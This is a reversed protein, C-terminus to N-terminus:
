VDGWGVLLDEFRCFSGRFALRCTGKSGHRNKEVIFERTSGDEDHQHVFVVADAEFEIEGSGRLDSMKPRKRDKGGRNMSSLLLIPVDADKALTKQARVLSGIEEERSRSRNSKIRQLYDIVVLAPKVKRCEARVSAVIQELSLGGIDTFELPIKILQDVANVIRPWDDDRLEGRRLRGGDVHSRAAILRCMLEHEPMELSYLLVRGGATAVRDAVNCAWSTKGSGPQGSLVILHGNGLDPLLKALDAYGHEVGGSYGDKTAARELRDVTAQIGQRLTRLELVKRGEAVRQIREPLQAVWSDHDEVGTSAEAAVWEGLDRIQRRQSCRAVADVYRPLGATTGKRDSIEALKASWALKEGPASGGLMRLLAHLDGPDDGADHISCMARFVSEYRTDGFDTPSLRNRSQELLKPDVLIAALVEREADADAIARVQEPTANHASGTRTEDPPPGEFM